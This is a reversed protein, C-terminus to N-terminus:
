KWHFKTPRMSGMNHKPKRWHKSFMARREYIKNIANGGFVPDVQDGIGYINVDLHETKRGRVFVSKPSFKVMVQVTNYGSILVDSSSDFNNEDPYVGVHYINRDNKPVFYSVDFLAENRSEMILVINVLFPRDKYSQAELDKFIAYKRDVFEVDPLVNRQTKALFTLSYFVAVIFLCVGLVALVKRGM